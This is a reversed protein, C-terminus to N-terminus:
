VRTGLDMCETSPLFLNIYISNYNLSNETVRTGSDKIPWTVMKCTWSSKSFATRLGNSNGKKRYLSYKNTLLM